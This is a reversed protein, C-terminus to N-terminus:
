ALAILIEGLKALMEPDLSDSSDLATLIDELQQRLNRADPADTYTTGNVLNDHLRLVKELSFKVSPELGPLRLPVVPMPPSYIYPDLTTGAGSYSYIAGNNVVDTLRYLRDVSEVIEKGCPMLLSAAQKALLQRGETAEDESAWYFKQAKHGLAALMFPIAPIDVEVLECEYPPRPADRPVIKTYSM